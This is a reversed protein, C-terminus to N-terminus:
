FTFTQALDYVGLLYDVDTLRKKRESEPKLLAERKQMLTRGWTDPMSDLFLGFNPKKSPTYQPGSFWQLDPDLLQQSQTRLWAKDHSFSWTLHERAEQATLTGMRVPDPMGLWHAYVM